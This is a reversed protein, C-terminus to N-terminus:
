TYICKMETILKINSAHAVTVQTNALRVVQTLKTSTRCTQTINNARGIFIITVQQPKEAALQFHTTTM